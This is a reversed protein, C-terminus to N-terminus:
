RIPMNTTQPNYGGMYQGQGTMGQTGMFAGGRMGGGFNRGSLNGPQIGSMFYYGTSMFRIRSGGTVLPGFDTAGGMGTGPAPLETVQQQLNNISNQTDIAPRVLGYYNVAQSSGSRLLNLYPSVAPGNGQPNYGGYGGGFPGPRFQPGQATAENGLALCLSTTAMMLVYRM